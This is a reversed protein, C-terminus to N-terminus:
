FIEFQTVLIGCKRSFFVPAAKVLKVEGSPIKDKLGVQQTGGGGLLCCLPGSCSCVQGADCLLYVLPGFQRPRNQVKGM